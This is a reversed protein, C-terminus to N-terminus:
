EKFYIIGNGPNVSTGFIGGHNNVYDLYESYVIYEECGANSVRLYVSESNDDYIIGTVTYYHGKAIHSPVFYYDTGAFRHDTTQGNELSYFNLGVDDNNEWITNVSMIIPYGRSLMDDIYDLTAGPNNYNVVEWRADFYKNCGIGVLELRTCLSGYYLGWPTAGGTFYTNDMASHMLEYYINYDYTTVGNQMYLCVDNFAVLGCGHADIYYDYDHTMLSPFRQQFWTGEDSAFWRQNGGYGQCRATNPYDTIHIYGPDTIYEGEVNFLEIDDGGLNVTTIDSKRPHNDIGDSYYDGDTDPKNIEEALVVGPFGTLIVSSLLVTSLIRKM